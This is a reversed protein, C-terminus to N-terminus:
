AAAPITTGTASPENNLDALLANRVVRCLLRKHARLAHMPTDGSQRRAQQYEHGPGPLRGQTVAIRHLALNLQRNGGRSLRVRDSRGSQVPIPAVGAHMALTGDNRFRSVDGVEGLIKAATHPGCGRAALLTPVTKAALAKIQKDFARIRASLDRCDTVHELLIATLVSPPQESLWGELADLVKTRDLSGAPISDGRAPDLEHLDWRLRNQVDTRRATLRDRHDVLLKAERAVPAPCYVPLDERLAARAVALADIPDSKGRTRASRRAGAMLKPPVPTVREGACVLASLLGGSVHRVDEVAWVREDRDPWRAQAWGILERHGGTRAAVTLEGDPVARGRVDAAVCTHTHKHPDVGLVVM